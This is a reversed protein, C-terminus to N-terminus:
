LLNIDAYVRCDHLAGPLPNSVPEPHFTASPALTTFRRNMAIRSQAHATETAAPRGDDGAQVM